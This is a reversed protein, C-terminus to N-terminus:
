EELAEECRWREKVGKFIGANILVVVSTANLQCSCLQHKKKFFFSIIVECLSM